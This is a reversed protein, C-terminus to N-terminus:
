EIQWANLSLGTFDQQVGDERPRRRFCDGHPDAMKGHVRRHVICILRGLNYTLAQCRVM